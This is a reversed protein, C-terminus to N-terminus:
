EVGGEPSPDTRRRLVYAELREYDEPLDMDMGFGADEILVAKAKCGFAMSFAREGDELTASGFVYKLLTPWARPRRALFRLVPGLSIRPRGRDIDRRRLHFERIVDAGERIARRSLAYLEGPFVQLDRLRAVVRRSGPFAAEALHEPVVSLVFDYGPLDDLAQMFADVSATSLAPADSSSVVVMEAKEGSSQLAELGALLKEEFGATLSTPVYHVRFPFQAQEESLGLLYIEGVSQSRRLAELQWDIVRKGLFPLLAKVPIQMGPDKEVMLSRRAEDRGCMVFVPYRASPAGPRSMVALRREPVESVISQPLRYHTKWRSTAKVLPNYM